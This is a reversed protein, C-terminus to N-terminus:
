SSRTWNLTLTFASSLSSRGAFIVYPSGGSDYIALGGATGDVMAQGWSTPITFTAIQGWKLRPGSTSSTLTPAGGPRTKQTVLFLTTSQAATIGGASKRGVRITASTVTAGVLSRPKTGYFACGQHNGNGGYQGQYVDDNDTRWGTWVTTRYSRTEVPSVVLRGSVSSPKPPPAPSNDVPVAPASSYYRQVVLWEPGFRQVLCVDGVAVTLDRAVQCSTEVGNIVFNAVSGVKVSTAYALTARVGTLDTRTRAFDSSV